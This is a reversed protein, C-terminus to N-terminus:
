TAALKRQDTATQPPRYSLAHLEPCQAANKKTRSFTGYRPFDAPMSYIQLRRTLPSNSKPFQPPAFIFRSRPRARAISRRGSPHRAPLSGSLGHHRSTRLRRAVLKRLSSGRADPHGVGPHMVYLHM